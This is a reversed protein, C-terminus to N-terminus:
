DWGIPWKRPWPLRRLRSEAALVALHAERAAESTMGRVARADALEKEAERIAKLRRVDDSRKGAEAPTVLAAGGEAAQRSGAGEASVLDAKRGDEAQPRNRGGDEEQAAAAEEVDAAGGQGAGREGEPPRAAQGAAEDM